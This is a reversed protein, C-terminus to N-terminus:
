YFWCLLTTFSGTVALFGLETFTCSTNLAVAFSAWEWQCMIRTYDPLPNSLRTAIITLLLTKPAMVGCM